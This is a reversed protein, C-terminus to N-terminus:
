KVKKHGGHTALNDSGHSVTHEKSGGVKHMEESGKGESGAKWAKDTVKSSVGFTGKDAKGAAKPATPAPKSVVPAPANAEDLKKKDDKKVEAKKGGKKARLAAMKAAVGKKGDKKAKAKKAEEILRATVRALVADVLKSEDMKHMKGEDAEEEEEEEGEKMVAEDEEHVAEDMEEEDGEEESEEGEEEEEEKEEGAELEPMEEEGAGAEAGEGAEVEVDVGHEKAVGALASIMAHVLKEMGEEGGEEGGEEAAEEMKYAEEQEGYGEEKMEPHVAESKALSGLHGRGHKTEDESQSGGVGVMENVPQKGLAPINALTMFRRIESETLLKKDSM